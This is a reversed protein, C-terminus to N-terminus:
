LFLPRNKQKHYQHPLVLYIIIGSLSLFIYSHYKKM